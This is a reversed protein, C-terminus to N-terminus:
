REVIDKELTKLRRNKLLFGSYTVGLCTPLQFGFPTPFWHFQSESALYIYHHGSPHLQHRYRRFTQVDPEGMIDPDWGRIKSLRGHPHRPVVPATRLLIRRYALVPSRISLHRFLPRSNLTNNYALPKEFRKRSPRRLWRAPDHPPRSQSHPPYIYHGSRNTSVLITVVMKSPSKSLRPLVRLIYM